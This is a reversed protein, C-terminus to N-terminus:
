LAYMAQNQIFPVDTVETTTADFRASASTTAPVTFSSVFTRKLPNILDVTVTTAAPTYVTSGIMLKNSGSHTVPNWSDVVTEVQIQTTSLGFDRQKSKSVMEGRPRFTMGRARSDLVICPQLDTTGSFVARLQILAPLGNLHDMGNGDPTLPGWAEDPKKIEWTLPAGGPQWGGHLLRIETMGNELTLPAFEVVTRPAFGGAANLRMAYDLTADGQAWVGDSCVFSSGQAFKNGTVTALMHNGTTVTFWAYRRASELLSPRVGFKVWGPAMEGPSLTKNVIVKDFQPAGSEACECVMLHVEGSTGVRTFKLDISTLIMPQACLWTQGYVAGTVGIEETVYDWYVDSVSRTIVQRIGYFRHGAVDRNAVISVVQFTEGNATFLEGVSQNFLSSWESNNECVTITPGYEVVQRSIERRVAQVNTHVASSISKSGGDDLVELRLVETYAPLLLNGWRRVAANDADLLALQADREAAWPFRVGERIRALWTPSTTDWDDRLLGADYWYARAEDPMSLRRRINGIDSKIQRMVIPNPIDGLRAAINAVDTELTTTRRITNAVDGEVQTLRGNVEYLSRLRSANDPEIAVIGTTALEVFALNCETAAISPRLPTPSNLGMQVVIELGRVETKVLAQQVTEGTDADTEVLRNEVLTETKGRLLLAVYRRDGTVLPLYEQLNVTLAADASYVAGGVFLGGPNVSLEIASVQSLTFGAWHHPYAVAGGVILDDADRAYQSINEFDQPESVEYLHFKQLKTM